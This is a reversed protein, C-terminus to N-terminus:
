GVSLNEKKGRVADVCHLLARLSGLSVVGLGWEGQLSHQRRAYGEEHLHGDAGIQGRRREGSSGHLATYADTVLLSRLLPLGNVLSQSDFCIISEAFGFMRLHDYKAAVFVDLSRLSIPLAPFSVARQNRLHTECM